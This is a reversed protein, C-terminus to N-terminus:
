SIVLKIGMVVFMTKMDVPYRSSLTLEIRFVGRLESNITLSTHTSLLVCVCETNSFARFSYVTCACKM